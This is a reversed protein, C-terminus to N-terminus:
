DLCTVVNLDKFEKLTTCNAQKFKTIGIGKTFARQKGGGYQSPTGGRNIIFYGLDWDNQISGDPSQAIAYEIAQWTHSHPPNELSAAGWAVMCCIAASLMCGKAFSAWKVKDLKPNVYFMAVGTSLLPAIMWTFKSQLLLLILFIATQPWMIAPLLAFGFALGFIHGLGILPQAENVGIKPLANGIIQKWFIEIAPIATVALVLSSLAFALLFYIAGNWFGAAFLLLALTCLDYKRQKTARAKYFFYTAWILIPFAFQDNEFSMAQFFLVPSLFSFLAALWGKEKHFIIGLQGIGLLSTFFLLFLVGKIANTNCPIAKLALDAILPTGEVAFKGCSQNLYAYSDYGVLDTRFITYIAFPIAAMILIALIQKHSLM